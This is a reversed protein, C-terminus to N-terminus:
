PSTASGVPLHPGKGGLKLPCLPKSGAPRPVGFKTCIVVRDRRGTLFRGLIEEAEGDGYPPAVDYWTVGREFAAHLARLGQGESVHSGLSACGFGLARGQVVAIVPVKCTRLAGYCDFVVDSFTRRELADPEKKPTAGMAARGVCFDNGAGRLVVLNSTKDAGVLISTLQAVMEDSVANGREPRNLTVNLVPGDQKSLIDTM